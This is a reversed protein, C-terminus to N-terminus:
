SQEWKMLMNFAVGFILLMLGVTVWNIPHKLMGWNVIDM